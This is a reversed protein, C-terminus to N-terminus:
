GGDLPLGTAERMTRAIDRMHEESWGRYLIMEPYGHDRALAVQYSDHYIAYWWWMLSPVIGAPLVIFVILWDLLNVERTRSTVIGEYETVRVTTTQQPVFCVRWTKSLQVRGKKNRSMDLRDYTGLLFTMMVTGVFWSVLFLALEGFALAAFLGLPLVVAQFALFLGVRKQLSMGAEWHREMPEYVKPPRRGTQRNFGCAPCVLAQPALPKSCGPCKPEHLDGVVGYSDTDDFATSESTPEPAEPAAPRAMIHEPVAKIPSTRRCRPCQRRGRPGDPEMPGGCKPCTRTDEPQFLLEAATDDPDPAPAPRRGPPAKGPDPLECIVGCQPCRMKRREYDEPIELIHGCGHCIVSGSV